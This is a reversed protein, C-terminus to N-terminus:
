CEPGILLISPSGVSYQRTNGVGPPEVQTIQAFHLLFDEDAVIDVSRCAVDDSGDASVVASSTARTLCVVLEEDSCFWRQEEARLTM